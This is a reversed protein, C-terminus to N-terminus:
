PSISNEHFKGGREIDTFSDDSQVSRFEIQLYHITAIEQQKMEAEDLEISWLLILNSKSKKVTWSSVQM